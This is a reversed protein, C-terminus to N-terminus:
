EASVLRRSQHLQTKRTLDYLFVRESIQQLSLTIIEWTRGAEEREHQNPDYDGYTMSLTATWQEYRLILARNRNDQPRKRLIISIDPPQSIETRWAGELCTLKGATEPDIDPIAGILSRLPTIVDANRAGPEAQTDYLSKFIGTIQEVAACLGNGSPLDVRRYQEIM